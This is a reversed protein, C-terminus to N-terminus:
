SEPVVGVPLASDAFRVAAVCTTHKSTTEQVARIDQRVSDDLARQRVRSVAANAERNEGSLGPSGKERVYTRSERYVKRGRIRLLATNRTVRRVADQLKLTDRQFAVRAVHREAARAELV